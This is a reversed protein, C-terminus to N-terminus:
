ESWNTKIFEQIYDYDWDGGSGNIDINNKLLNWAEEKTDAEGIFYDSEGCQECYLDDYDLECETTYLGYLHGDYIYM